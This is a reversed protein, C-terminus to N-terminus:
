GDDGAPLQAQSRRLDARGLRVSRTAQIALWVILAVDVALVAGYWAVLFGRSVREHFTLPLLCLTLFAYGWLLLRRRIGRQLAFWEASLRM